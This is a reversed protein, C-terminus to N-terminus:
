RFTLDWSVKYLRMGVCSPMEKNLDNNESDWDKDRHENTSNQNQYDKNEKMYFHESSNEKQYIRSINANISTRSSEKEHPDGSSRLNGLNEIWTENHIKKNPRKELFVKSSNEIHPNGVEFGVECECLYSGPTNQCNANAGCSDM